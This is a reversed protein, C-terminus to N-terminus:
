GQLRHQFGYGLRLMSPVCRARTLPLMPEYRPKSHSRTADLRDSAFSLGYVRGAAARCHETRALCSAPHRPEVSGPGPTRVGGPAADAAVAPSMRRSRRDPTPCGAADPVFPFDFDAKPSPDFISRTDHVSVRQLAPDLQRGTTCIEPTEIFPVQAKRTFSLPM